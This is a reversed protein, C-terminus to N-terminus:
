RNLFSQAFCLIDEKVFENVRLFNIVRNSVKVTDNKIKATLGITIEKGHDNCRRTFLKDEYLFCCNPVKCRKQCRVCNMRKTKEELYTVHKFIDFINGFEKTIAGATVYYKFSLDIKSFIVIVEGPIMIRIEPEAEPANKMAITRIISPTYRLVYKTEDNGHCCIHLQPYIRVNAKVTDNEWHESEYEAYGHMHPLETTEVIDPRIAKSFLIESIFLANKFATFLKDYNESTLNDVFRANFENKINNALLIGLMANIDSDVNREIPKRYKKFFVERYDKLAHANNFQNAISKLYEIAEDVKDKEDVLPEGTEEDIGFKELDEATHVTKALDLTTPSSEFGHPFSPEGAPAPTSSEDTITFKVKAANEKKSKRTKRKTETENSLSTPKTTTKKAM